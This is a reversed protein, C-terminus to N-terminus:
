LVYLDYRYGYVRCGIVVYGLMYIYINIYVKQNHIYTKLM